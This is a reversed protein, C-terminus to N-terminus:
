NDSSKECLYDAMECAKRRFDLGKATEVEGGLGDLFLTGQRYCAAAEGQGCAKASVEREVGAVEEFTEDDLLEPFRLAKECAQWKTPCLKSLNEAGLVQASGTLFEIQSEFLIDCSLYDKDCAAQMAKLGEKVDGESAMGRGMIACAQASGLRCGKELIAEQASTALKPSLSAGFCAAGSGLECGKKLDVLAETELAQGGIGQRKYIGLLACSESDNQSCGAEVLRRAMTREGLELAADAQPSCEDLAGDECIEIILDSTRYEHSMEKRFANEEADVVTLEYTADKIWLKGAPIFGYQEEVYVFPQNASTHVKTRLVIGAKTVEKRISAQNGDVDTVSEGVKARRVVPSPVSVRMAGLNTAKVVPLLEEVSGFESNQMLERAMQVYDFRILSGHPDVVMSIESCDESEAQSFVWFGGTPTPLLSIECSTGAGIPTANPAEAAAFYKTTRTGEFASLLVLSQSADQVPQTLSKTKGSSSAGCGILVATAFLAGWKKYLM